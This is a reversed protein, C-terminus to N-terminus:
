RPYWQGAPRPWGRPRGAPWRSAPAMGLLPASRFAMSLLYARPKKVRTRM